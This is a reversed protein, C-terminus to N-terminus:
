LIEFHTSHFFLPAPDRENEDRERRAEIQEANVVDFKRLVAEVRHCRDRHPVRLADARELPEGVFAFGSLPSPTNPM